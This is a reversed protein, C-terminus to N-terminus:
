NGRRGELERRGLEQECLEGGGGRGRGRGTGTGTVALSRPPGVGALVMM